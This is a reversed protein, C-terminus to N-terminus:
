QYLIYKTYVVLNHYLNIYIHVILAKYLHGDRWAAPSHKEEKVFM